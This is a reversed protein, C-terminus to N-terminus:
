RRMGTSRWDDAIALEAAARTANDCIVRDEDHVSFVRFTRVSGGEEVEIHHGTDQIGDCSAGYGGNARRYIAAGSM